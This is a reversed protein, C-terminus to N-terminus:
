WRSKDPFDTMLLDSILFLNNAETLPWISELILKTQDTLKPEIVGPCKFLNVIPFENCYFMIHLVM